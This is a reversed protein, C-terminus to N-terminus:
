SAAEESNVTEATAGSLVTVGVDGYWGSDDGMYERNASYILMAPHGGSSTLTGSAKFWWSDLDESNNWAAYITGRYTVDKYVTIVRVNNIQNSTGYVAALADVTKFEDEVDIKVTSEKVPSFKLTGDEYLAVMIDKHEQIVYKLCGNNSTSSPITGTFVCVKTESNEIGRAGVNLRLIWVEGHTTLPETDETIVTQVALYCSVGETYADFADSWSGSSLTISEADSDDIAYTAFLWVASAGGGGDFSDIKKNIDEIQTKVTEISESNKAIEGGTETIAVSNKAIKGDMEAISESNKEIKGNVEAISEVWNALDKGFQERTGTYGQEVADAYATVRGLNISDM